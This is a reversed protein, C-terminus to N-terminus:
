YTSDLESDAERDAESDAEYGGVQECDPYCPLRRQAKKESATMTHSAKIGTEMMETAKKDDKKDDKTDDKTDDKPSKKQETSKKDDKKDDKTDDKPSKKQETSKKHYKALEAKLADMETAMSKVKKEAQALKEQLADESKKCDAAMESKTSAVTSDMKKQMRGMFATRLSASAESLKKKADVDEQDRKLKRQLHKTTSVTHSAHAAAEDAKQGQEKTKAQMVRLEGVKHQYSKTLTANLNAGTLEVYRKMKRRERIASAAAAKKVADVRADCSDKAKEQARQEKVKAKNASAAAEKKAAESKAGLVQMKV